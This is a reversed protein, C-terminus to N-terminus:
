NFLSKQDSKLKASEHKIMSKIKILTDSIQYSEFLDAVAAQKIAALHWRYSNVSFESLGKKSTPKLIPKDATGLLEIYGRDM